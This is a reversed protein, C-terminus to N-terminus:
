EFLDYIIAMAMGCFLGIIGLSGVTKSNGQTLLVYIASFVCTMVLILLGLVIVTKLTVKEM